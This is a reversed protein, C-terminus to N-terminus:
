KKRNQSTVTSHKNKTTTKQTNKKDEAKRSNQNRCFVNKVKESKPTESKAVDAAHGDLGFDCVAWFRGLVDNKRSKEPFDWFCAIKLPKFFSGSFFPEEFFRNKNRKKKCSKAFVGIRGKPDDEM